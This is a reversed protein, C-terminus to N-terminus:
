LLYIELIRPTKIQQYTYTSTIQLNTIEVISNNVYVNVPKQVRRSITTACCGDQAVYYSAAKTNALVSHTFIINYQKFNILNKLTKWM